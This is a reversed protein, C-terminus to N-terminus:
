LLDAIEPIGWTVGDEVSIRAMDFSDIPSYESHIDDFSRFIEDDDVVFYRDSPDFYDTTDEVIQMPSLKYLDMAVFDFATMNWIKYDSRIYDCYDNHLEIRQRDSRSDIIIAIDDILDADYEM